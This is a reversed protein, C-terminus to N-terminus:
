VPEVIQAFHRLPNLHRPTLKNKLQELLTGNRDVSTFANPVLKWNQFHPKHTGTPLDGLKSASLLTWQEQQMARWQEHFLSVKVDPLTYLSGQEAYTFTPKTAKSRPSLMPGRGLANTWEQWEDKQCDRRKRCHHSSFTSSQCTCSVCSSMMSHWTSAALTWWRYM